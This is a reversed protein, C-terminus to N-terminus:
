NKKYLYLTKQTIQNISGSLQMIGSKNAIRGAFNYYDNFFSIFYKDNCCNEGEFSKYLQPPLAKRGSPPPIYKWSETDIDYIYGDTYFTYPSNLYGAYKIIKNKCISTYPQSRGVEIDDEHNPIIKWQNTTSNYEQINSNGNMFYQKNQYSGLYNRISNGRLTDIDDLWLDQQFYYRKSVIRTPNSIGRVFHIFNDNQFGSFGWGINSIDASNVNSVSKWQASVFDYVYYEIVSNGYYVLMVKTELHVIQFSGNSLNPSNTLSVNIWSNTLLDLIKSGQSDWIFLQNSNRNPNFLSNSLPMNSSSILEWSNTTPNYIRSSSFNGQTFALVRDKFFYYNTQSNDPPANVSDIKAWQDIEPNYIARSNKNHGFFFFKGSYSSSFKGESSYTNNQTSIKRWVDLAPTSIQTTGIMSFGANILTQNPHTESFIITSQPINADLSKWNSGNWFYYGVGNADTGTISANTNYILQAVTPTGTQSVDTTTMLAFSSSTNGQPTLTVAQTYAKFSFVVLLLLIKLTKM